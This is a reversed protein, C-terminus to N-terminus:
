ILPEGSCESWLKRARAWTGVIRKVNFDNDLIHEMADAERRLEDARPHGADALRRMKEHMSPMNDSILGPM